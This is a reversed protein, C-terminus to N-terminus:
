AAEKWQMDSPSLLGLLTQQQARRMDVGDGTYLMCEQARQHPIMIYLSCAHEDTTAERFHVYSSLLSEILFGFCNM